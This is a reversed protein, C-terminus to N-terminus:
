EGININRENNSNIYNNINLNNLYNILNQYDEDDTKLIENYDTAEALVRELNNITENYMKQKAINRLKTRKNLKYFLIINGLVLIIILISSLLKSNLTIFIGIIGIINVLLLIIILDKDEENFQSNLHTELEKKIEAFNQGNLTKTEFNNVTINFPDRIIQKRQKELAKIIYEKIYSLAIKKTEPSVKYLDQNIVINSLLSILDTQNNFVSEQKNYLREAEERNGNCSIILQNRLNDKQFTQEKEEYEYILNNLIQNITKNSFDQSIIDKFENLLPVYSSTIILNNRLTNIDKSYKILQNFPVNDAQKNSIYNLWTNLQKEQIQTESNLQKFWINIKNLVERKAEDGFSGTTVLDLITVFDKDLKLPNELSLYKNLWNISTSIRGLKLNILTFFLSTKKPDKKLANNVEKETEQRNNLLWSTLAALANALWYNPTNLLLDHKLNTLSNLSITSNQIADILSETTRRVNDYYGYKKAIQENNYMISQRANTIITTERIEKMLNKVDDNLSEVKAEMKNVQSNVSSVNSIVGTLENAVAGLNKEITDLNAASITLAEM